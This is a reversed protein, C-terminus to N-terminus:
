RLFSRRFFNSVENPNWSLILADLDIKGYNDLEKIISSGGFKTYLKYHEKKIGLLTIDIDNNTFLIYIAKM